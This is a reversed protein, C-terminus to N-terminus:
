GVRVSLGPLGTCAAELRDGPQVAGVGAPTGTFILDGPGLHYLTSLHAIIEDVRWVMDSLLGAQREAGNVALSLRASGNPDFGDATRLAGVVASGEVDKATDWPQRKEKSAAQLDRRTMDLGVAYGFVADLAEAATVRFAPAALAVVLEVEHHYDATGPAYPITEGDGALHMAAKTFYFPASRDVQSGMEKAHEAYNRGVCFIRRVPYRSAQGAVAVSPPEPPPFLFDSM